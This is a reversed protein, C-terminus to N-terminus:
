AFKMYNATTTIFNDPRDTFLWNKDFNVDSDYISYEKETSEIRFGASGIVDCLRNYKNELDEISVYNRLTGIPKDMTKNYPNIFFHAGHPTCIDVLTNYEATCKIPIKFHFEYYGNSGIEIKQPVDDNTQLAEIKTRIVPINSRAMDNTIESVKEFVQEKDGHMKFTLMPQTPYDGYFAKACTPRPRILLEDRLNLIFGFLNIENSESVILHVEYIGM